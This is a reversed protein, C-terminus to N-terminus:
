ADIRTQELAQAYGTLSQLCRLVEGPSSTRFDGRPMLRLASLTAPELGLTRWPKLLDKVGQVVGPPRQAPDLAELFVQGGSEVLGAMREWQRYDLTRPDFIMGTIGAQELLDVRERWKPDAQPLGSIWSVQHETEITEVLEKLGTRVEQRPLSRLTRYGSVTPITGDLVAPLQEECLQLTFHELSTIRRVRTLWDGLGHTYAQIVDRRAGHDSIVREGNSLYLNAALTWPGMISLKIRRSVSKEAGIVDALLNEDSRLLSRARRADIGDAVGVRWGHPQLDFGLETILAASRAVPEAWIGREPLEPLVALNPEGLEGRVVRHVELAEKGAFAAHCTVHVSEEAAAVADSTPPNDM